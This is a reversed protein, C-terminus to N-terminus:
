NKGKQDVSLTDHIKKEKSSRRKVLSDLYCRCPPNVNLPVYRRTNQILRDFIYSESILSLLNM